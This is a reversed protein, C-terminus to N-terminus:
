RLALREHLFALWAEVKAPLHRRRPYLCWIGHEPLAHDPLLPVLRSLPPTVPRVAM